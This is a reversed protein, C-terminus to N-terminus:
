DHKQTPADPMLFYEADDSDKLKVDPTSSKKVFIIRNEILTRCKIIGKLYIDELGCEQITHRLHELFELEKMPRNKDHNELKDLNKKVNAM